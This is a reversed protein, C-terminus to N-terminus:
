GLGLGLSLSTLGEVSRFGLRRYLGLAAEDDTETALSLWTAGATLAADRVAGVLASM